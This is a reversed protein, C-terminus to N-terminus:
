RGEAPRIHKIDGASFAAVDGGELRILLSGDQDLGEATGEIINDGWTGRIRMGITCCRSAYTEMFYKPTMRLTGLYFDLRKLFHSLLHHRSPVKGGEQAVSTAETLPDNLIPTVKLNVGFGSIVHHIQDVEVAGESLMGCIKRGRVLIDNPWKIECGIGCLEALADGMAMACALNVAQVMRPLLKPRLLVSGYLGGPPSEWRRSQRGRGSTQEDAVVVAGEPRGQAAMEKLPAQTSGISAYHFIPHGLKSDILLMEAWSPSFRDDEPPGELVYGKQPVSSIRIGEDKLNGIIKSIGQRTIKLEKVLASSPTLQGPNQALIWLVRVRNDVECRADMHM